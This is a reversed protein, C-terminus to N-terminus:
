GGKSMSLNSFLRNEEDNMYDITKVDILNDLECLESVEDVEKNIIETLESKLKVDENLEKKYVQVMRLSINLEDAIEKNTKNNLIGRLVNILKERKQQERKTLGESNRRKARRKQNNRDYKENKSIITTMSKMEYDTIELLDVLTSNKYNYKGIYNSKTSRIESVSLPKVFKSNLEETLREAEEEGECLTAYYRYLFLIIERKGEVDFDRLETLKHLDNLRAKYLSFENYLFVRKGKWEKKEKSKNKVKPLYEDKLYKLSYRVDNYEIVSVNSDSKTNYSGIVRLVRAADLAGRDAGFDKLQNYLYDQMAKWLTFAKSPVSEILWILYLGRGSDVILSPTPISQNFYDNELFFLVSEKRLNFKYCDIDVYLANLYRLSDMTREPKYFTNLTCYLDSEYNKDFYDKIGQDLDFEKFCRTYVSGKFGKRFVAIFGQDDKKYVLSHLDSYSFSKATNM